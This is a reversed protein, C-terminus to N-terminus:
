KKLMDYFDTRLQKIGDARIARSLKAPLKKWPLSQRKPLHWLSHSQAKRQRFSAGKGVSLLYKQVYVLSKATRRMAKINSVGLAGAGAAYAGREHFVAWPKLLRITFNFGSLRDSRAGPVWQKIPRAPGRGHDGKTEPWPKGYPTKQAAITKTLHDATHKAMIGMFPKAITYPANEFFIQVDKLKMAIERPDRVRAM